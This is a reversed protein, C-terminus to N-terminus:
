WENGYFANKIYTITPLQTQPNIVEENILAVDFRCIINQQNKRSLYEKAVLVIKRQKTSNVLETTCHLSKSRTKVEVFAVLSDKQAIIDIEGFRKTYNIANITYGQSQLYRAILQEGQQGKSKKSAHQM